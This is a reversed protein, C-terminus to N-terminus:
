LYGSYGKAQLLKIFYHCLKRFYHLANHDLFIEDNIIDYYKPITDGKEDIILGDQLKSMFSVLNNHHRPLVKGYRHAFCHRIRVFNGLEPWGYWKPDLDLHKQWQKLGGVRPVNRTSYANRNPFKAMLETCITELISIGMVISTGFIAPEVSQRLRLVQPSTPGLSNVFNEYTGHLHDIFYRIITGLNKM